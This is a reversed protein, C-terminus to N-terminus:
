AARARAPLGGTAALFDLIDDLGVRRSLDAFVTPLGKRGRAADAEM